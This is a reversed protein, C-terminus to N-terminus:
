KVLEIICVPHVEWCTARWLNTGEPNTNVANQKHEEDFFMWGEIIVEKNLMTKKINAVTYEPNSLKTFRNIEVVVAQTANDGVHLALEIHIDLDKPDKSHCNCTESGGPKVLIVYGTLRVYQKSTFRHVDNGTNLIEQLMVTTDIKTGAVSRNKLSDLHEMRANDKDGRLPRQSFTKSVFLFLIGILFLLKKM